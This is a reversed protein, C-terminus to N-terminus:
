VINVNNQRGRKSHLASSIYVNNPLSIKYCKKSIRYKRDARPDSVSHGSNKKVNLVKQLFFRRHKHM